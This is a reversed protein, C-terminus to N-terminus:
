SSGDEAEDWSEFHRRFEDVVQGLKPHVALLMNAVGHRDHPTTPYQILHYQQGVSVYATLYLLIRQVGNIPLHPLIPRRLPGVDRVAHPGSVRPRVPGRPGAHM